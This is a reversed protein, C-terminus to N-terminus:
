VDYLGSCPYRQGGHDRTRRHVAASDRPHSSTLDHQELFSSVANWGHFSANPRLWRAATSSPCTTPRDAASKRCTACPGAFVERHKGLGLGLDSCCAERRQRGGMCTLSPLSFPPASAPVTTPEPQCSSDPSNSSWPSHCLIEGCPRTIVHTTGGSVIGPLFSCRFLPCCACPPVLWLWM